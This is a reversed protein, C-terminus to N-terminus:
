EWKVLSNPILTNTKKNYIYPIYWHARQYAEQDSNYWWSLQGRRSNFDIKLLSYNTDLQRNFPLQKKIANREILNKTAITIKMSRIYLIFDYLFIYVITYMM